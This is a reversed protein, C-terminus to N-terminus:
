CNKVDFSVPCRTNKRVLEDGMAFLRVLLPWFEAKEAKPMELWNNLFLPQAMKMPILGSATEIM